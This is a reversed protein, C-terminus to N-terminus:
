LLVGAQPEGVPIKHPKRDQSSTSEIEAKALNGIYDCEFLFVSSKRGKVRINGLPILGITNNQALKFNEVADLSILVTKKLVEAVTEIRSATNVTDSIVTDDLRFEEGITGLVTKGFHLGMGVAIPSKGIGTRMTNLIKIRQKMELCIDVVTKANAPFLAILGRSLFKSIFGGAQTVLPSFILAFDQFVEYQDQPTIEAESRRVYIQTFLITMKTEKFDGLQVDLINHKNLISLFEHPVFRIYSDNIKRLLRTLEVQKKFMTSEVYSTFLFQIIAVWLVIDPLISRSYGHIFKQLIELLFIVLVAFLAVFPLFTVISTKTVLQFMRIAILIIGVVTGIFLFPYFLSLWYLPLVFTLAGATWQIIAYIKSIKAQLPTMKKYYSVFFLASLPALWMVILGIRFHISLSLTPMFLNVINFSETGIRTMFAFIFLARFFTHKLKPNLIFMIINMFFWFLLTGLIFFILATNSNYLNFISKAEGFYLPKNFGGEYFGYNAVQIAIEAFGSTDSSFEFYLPINVGEIKKADHSLKGSSAVLHDNIFFRMAISPTQKFFFAYTKTYDLGTIHLNYTGFGFAGKNKTVEDYYSDWSSPVTASVKKLHAKTESDISALSSFFVNKYFDWTGDLVTVTNLNRNLFDVSQYETTSFIWAQTFFFLFIMVFLNKRRM